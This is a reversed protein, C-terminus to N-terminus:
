SWHLMDATKRGWQCPHLSFSPIFHHIHPHLPTHTHPPPHRMLPSFLFFHTQPSSFILNPPIEDSATSTFFFVHPKKQKKKISWMTHKNSNGSMVEYYLVCVERCVCVCVAIIVMRWIVPTCIVAQSGRAQWDM